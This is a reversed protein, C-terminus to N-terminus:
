FGNQPYGRNVTDAEPMEAFFDTPISFLISLQCLRRHGCYALVDFPKERFVSESGIPSLVFDNRAFFNLLMIAVVVVAAVTLIVLVLKNRLFGM